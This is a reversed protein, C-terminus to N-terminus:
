KAIAIGPVPATVPKKTMQYLQYLMNFAKLNWNAGEGRAFPMEEVSYVHDHYKVSIAADPPVTGTERIQLTQAPNVEVPGTRPDQAVAYEPRDSIGRALFQLISNFSRLSIRGQFSFAGGPHDPRIDVLIENPPWDLLNKVLENRGDPRRSADYNSLLLRSKSLAYRHDGTKYWRHGTELAQLVDEPTPGREMVGEWLKEVMVPEIFLQHHRQLASLHLCRRRYEEYEAPNGPENELLTLGAETESRMAAGMMRLAMGLDSGLELISLFREEELPTLLRQEFEAGDMPVITITPNEAVTTSFIPAVLGRADGEPPRIGATMRFDFTAAVSSVTTFHVPRNYRARVINLLLQESSVQTVTEDYSLVAQHLAIPSLCGAVFPWGFLSSALLIRVAVNM